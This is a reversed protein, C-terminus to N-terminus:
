KLKIWVSRTSGDQLTATLLYTGKTVGGSATNWNFHWENGVLTFDVSAVITTLSTCQLNSKAISLRPKGALYPSGGCKVDFKVPLNNGLNATRLPTGCSGGTGGIPSYFGNFTLSTVIVTQTAESINGNGDNFTWTVVTTGAATIPSVTTTTGTVTVACNDTTTPATLTVSEGCAGTVTPLVPIVPPTTDETWTATRSVPTAAIGAADTVTWTRTQSRSCGNVTVITTQATPTVAPGNDTATAAGLAAEIDTDTPNLGLMGNPPTGSATIVPPTTDKVVVYFTCNTSNNDKDTATVKVPNSGVHFYGPPFSGSPPAPPDFTVPGVGCGGVLVTQPYTVPDTDNVHIDEPCKIELPLSLAVGDSVFYLNNMDTDITFPITLATCSVSSLDFPGVMLVDWKLSSNVNTKLFEVFDNLPTNTDDNPILNKDGTYEFGRLWIATGATGVANVTITGSKDNNMIGGVSTMELAACDAPTITVRGELEENDTTDGNSGVTTADWIYGSRGIVKAVTATSAGDPLAGGFVYGSTTTMAVSPIPMNTTAVTKTKLKSTNYARVNVSAQGFGTGNMAGTWGAMALQAPSLAVAIVIAATIKTFKWITKKM